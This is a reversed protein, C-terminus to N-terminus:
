VIKMTAKDADLIVKGISCFRDHPPGDLDSIELIMKFSIIDGNEEFDILRIAKFYGNSAKGITNGVKVTINGIPFERIYMIESFSGTCRIIAMAQEDEEFGFFIRHKGIFLVYNPKKGSLTIPKSSYEMNKVEKTEVDIYIEKM